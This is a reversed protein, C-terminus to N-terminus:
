SKHLNSPNFNLKKYYSKLESEKLFSDLYNRLYVVEERKLTIEAFSFREDENRSKLDYGTVSLQINDRENDGFTNNMFVLQINGADGCTNDPYNDLMIELHAM